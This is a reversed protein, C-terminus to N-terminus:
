VAFASPQAAALALRSTKSFSPTKSASCGFIRWKLEARAPRSFRGPTLSTRWHPNIAPISISSDGSIARGPGAVAVQRSARRYPRRVLGIPFTTTRIGGNHMVIASNVLATSAMRADIVSTQRRWLEVVLFSASSTVAQDAERQFPITGLGRALVVPPSPQRRLPRYEPQPSAMQAERNSLPSQPLASAFIHRALRM